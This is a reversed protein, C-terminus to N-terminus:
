KPPLHSAIWREIWPWTKWLMILFTGAVFPYLLDSVQSIKGVLVFMALAYIGVAVNRDNSLLDVLVDPFTRGTHTSTTISSPASFDGGTRDNKLAVGTTDRTEAGSPEPASSPTRADTLATSTADDM